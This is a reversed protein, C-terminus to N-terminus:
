PRPRQASVPSRAAVGDVDIAQGSELGTTSRVNIRTAGAAVPAALGSHALGLLYYSGSALKTGAPIAALQLPAWQSQTNVLTWNSIDAAKPGANYLEIFQNTANSGATLRVENIKVPLVNRVRAAVTESQRGGRRPNMWEAKGTLFGAGTAAPSTVEFTVSVSAGPAVAAGTAASTNGSVRTRWGAPLSVSLKVGEVAAGTTNTFTGTVSQMLGPTFTKVRTLSVRQVDYRAAVINAQVEDTTAETPYGTTMVGEYFTGASGNGNDGGIGLLIAGQKHMPFYANNTKSGPRIGSYFTTLGGQQANGGRLDRRNGGGGDVVATM